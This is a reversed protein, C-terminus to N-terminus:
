PLRSRWACRRRRGGQAAWISTALQPCNRSLYTMECGATVTAIGPEVCVACRTSLWPAARPRSGSAASRRLISCYQSAPYLSRTLSAAISVIQRCRPAPRRRRWSKGYRCEGPPRTHLRDIGGRREGGKCKGGRGDKGLAGRGARRLTDRVAVGGRHLLHQRALLGDGIEVVGGVGVQVAQFALVLGRQGGGSGLDRVVLLGLEILGLGVLVVRRHVLQLADRVPEVLLNANELGLAGLALGGWLGAR